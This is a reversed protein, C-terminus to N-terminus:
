EPVACVIKKVKTIRRKVIPRRQGPDRRNSIDIRTSPHSSVSATLPRFARSPSARTPRAQLSDVIIHHHCPPELPFDFPRRRRDTCPLPCSRPRFTNCDPKCPARSLRDLLPRFRNNNAWALTISHSQSSSLRCTPFPPPQSELRSGSQNSPFLSVVVV